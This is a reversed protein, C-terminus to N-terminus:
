IDWSGPLRKHHTLDILGEAAASSNLTQPFVDSIPFPVNFFSALCLSFSLANKNETFFTIISEKKKKLRGSTHGVADIPFKVLACTWVQLM